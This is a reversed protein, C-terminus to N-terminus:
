AFYIYPNTGGNLTCFGAMTNLGKHWYNNDVSRLTLSFANPETGGDMNTWDASYIDVIEYDDGRQECLREKRSYHQLQRQDKQRGHPPM